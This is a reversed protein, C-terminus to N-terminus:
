RRVVKAKGNAAEFRAMGARLAILSGIDVGAPPANETGGQRWGVAEWCAREHAKCCAECWEGPNAAPRAGCGACAPLAAYHGACCPGQDTWRRPASRDRAAGSSGECCRCALRTNPYTDWMAAWPGAVVPPPPTRPKPPPCPKRKGHTAPLLGRRCRQYAVRYTPVVLRKGISYDTEQGLPEADWDIGPPRPPAMLSPRAPADSGYKPIGRRNRAATVWNRPIGLRRALDADPELGLPVGTWDMCNITM